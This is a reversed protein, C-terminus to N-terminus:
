GIFVMPISIGRLLSLKFGIGLKTSVCTFGKINVCFLYRGFDEFFVVYSDHVVIFINLCSMEEIIFYVFKGVIFFHFTHTSM